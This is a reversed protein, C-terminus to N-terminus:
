LEISKLIEKLEEEPMIQAGLEVAKQMKSPGANYGTILINTKKNVSDKIIAGLENLKHAYEQSDCKAFGTLVIVKDKFPNDCVNELDLRQIKDEPNIKPVSVTNTKIIANQAILSDNLLSNKFALLLNGCMEADDLANHHKMEPVNFRRCVADLSHTGSGEVEIGLLREVKRSLPYTDIISDYDLVTKIGYFRAADHICAREVCANHAVLPLGEAFTEMEPLIDEFTRENKLMEETFGHIWTLATGCKGPYDFPPRILSYYRDVISGEKYKVMGVSCASVRQSYLTEFDIGVFSDPLTEIKYSHSVRKDCSAFEVSFLDKNPMSKSYVVVEELMSRYDSIFNEEDIEKCCKMQVRFSDFYQDVVVAGYRELTRIITKITSSAYGMDKAIDEYFYEKGEELIDYLQSENDKYFLGYKYAWNGYIKCGHKIIQVNCNNDFPLAFWMFSNHSDLASEMKIDDTIYLIESSPCVFVKLNEYGFSNNERTREFLVEADRITSFLAPREERILLDNDVFSIHCGRHSLNKCLLEEDANYVLAVYDKVVQSAAECKFLYFKDGVRFINLEKVERESLPSLSLMTRQRKNGARIVDIYDDILARYADFPNMISKGDVTTSFEACNPPWMEITKKLNNRKELLREYWESVWAYRIEEKIQKEVGKKILAEAHAEEQLQRAYENGCEPCGCRTSLIANPLRSFAGHNKCVLTVPTTSNVYYFQELGFVDGFKEKIKEIFKEGKACKPCGKGDLHERAFVEYDGHVPCGVVIKHNRNQYVVKSYDYKDGYIAKAEEILSETTVVRACLELSRNIQEEM